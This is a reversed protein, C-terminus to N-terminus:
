MLVQSSEGFHYGITWGDHCCNIDHTRCRIRPLKTKDKGVPYTILHIDCGKRETHFHPSTDQIPSWYPSQRRPREAKRIEKVIEYRKEMYAAAQKIRVKYSCGTKKRASGCYKQNPNTKPVQEKCIPCTLVGTPTNM